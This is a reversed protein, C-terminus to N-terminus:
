GTRTFAPCVFWEYGSAIASTDLRAKVSKRISLCEGYGCKMAPLIRYWSIVGGAGIFALPLTMSDEVVTFVLDDTQEIIEAAQDLDGSAEKVSVINDIKSLRIITNADM